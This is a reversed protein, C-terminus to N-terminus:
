RFILRVRVSHRGTRIAVSTMRAMRPMRICNARNSLVLLARYLFAYREKVGRGVAPSFQYDYAKGMQLLIKQARQLVVEDRLEVIAIFDYDILTQAIKYLEADDRSNDSMIRINWAAFKLASADDDGTITNQSVVLGTNIEVHGSEEPESQSDEKVHKHYVGTTRNYHGGNADTRGPHTYGLKYAFLVSILLLVALIRFNIKRFIM